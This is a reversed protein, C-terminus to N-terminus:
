RSGQVAALFRLDFAGFLAFSFIDQDSTVRLYGSDLSKDALEPCYETLLRSIRKGAEITEIKGAVLQGDYSFVEIAVTAVSAGPNLLTLGTFFDASSVLHSYVLKRAGSAQLPLAGAFRGGDPDTFVVSGTLRRNSEIELYGAKSEKITGLWNSSIQIKGFPQIVHFITKGIQVGDDGVFRLTVQGISDELNVLSVASRVDPTLAFQPCYLRSGGETQGNLGAVYEGEKWLQEFPVVPLDSEVAMYMSEGFNSVWPYLTTLDTVLVGNGAVQRAVPFGGIRGGWAGRLEFSVTATEPNPNAIHFRTVVPPTRIETFVFRDVPRMSASTTDLASLDPAGFSFFASVGDTVGTVRVWGQHEQEDFGGGLLPGALSSWQEGAGIELDVPEAIAAGKPDFAQLRANLETGSGNAIALGTFQGTAASTLHPFFLWDDLQVFYAGGPAAAAFATHNPGFVIDFIPKGGMGQNFERWTAGADDTRIISYSYIYPNGPLPTQKEVTALLTSSRLPDIALASLWLGELGIATWDQGGNTSKLVATEGAAYLLDSNWPDVAMPAWPLMALIPTRWRLPTAGLVTWTAGYDTTKALKTEENAWAVGPVHPDFAVPWYDMRQWTQGSDTSRWYELLSTLDFIGSYKPYIDCVYIIDQSHPDPRLKPYGKFYKPLETWTHGEDTSRRIKGSTSARTFMIRTDVPSVSVEIAASNILRWTKARDTTKWLGSPASAWAIGPQHQDAYLGSIQAIRNLGSSSDVWTQGEDVSCRVGLPSASGLLRNEGVSLLTDFVEKSQLQWTKGGDTSRFVGEAGPGFLIKPNQTVITLDRVYLRDHLTIWTAGADETKVLRWNDDKVYITKGDTPDIVMKSVGSFPWPLEQWNAGGDTSRYFFLKTATGEKRGVGYVSRGSDSAAALADFLVSELQSATWTAGGDTSRFVSKFDGTGAWRAAVVTEPQTALLALSYSSGPAEPDPQLPTWDRGADTSKFLDGQYLSAFVLDPNAPSIAISYPQNESQLMWSAGADTSRFITGGSIAYIISPASPAKFFSVAGTSPPGGGTWVNLDGLLLQPIQLAVLAFLALTPRM